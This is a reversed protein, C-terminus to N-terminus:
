GGAEDGGYGLMLRRGEESTRVAPNNAIFALDDLRYLTRSLALHATL